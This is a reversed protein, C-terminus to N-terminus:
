TRAEPWSSRLTSGSLRCGSAAAEKSLSSSAGREEMSKVANKAFTKYAKTEVPVWDEDDFMLVNPRAARGCCPCRIHNLVKDGRAESKIPRAMAHSSSSSYPSLGKPQNTYVKDTPPM